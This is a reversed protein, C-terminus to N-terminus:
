HTRTYEVNFDHEWPGGDFAKEWQGTMRSGDDSLSVEFRQAFSPNDRWMQWRRSDFSMRYVRTVGRADSYLITYHDEDQDRGIIMRAAPSAQDDGGQRMALVAGDEIWEFRVLGADVREEPDPLFSGGWLVLRWTGVLPALETLAALPIVGEVNTSRRNITFQRAHEALGAFIIPLDSM